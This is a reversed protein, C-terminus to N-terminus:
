YKLIKLRDWYCAYRTLEYDINPKTTAGAEVIKSVEPFDNSLSHGSNECAIM